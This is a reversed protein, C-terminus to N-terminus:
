IAEEGQICEEKTLATRLASGATMLLLDFRKKRKM